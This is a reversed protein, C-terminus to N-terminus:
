CDCSYIVKKDNITDMVLTNGTFLKDLKSFAQNVLTYVNAFLINVIVVQKCYVVVSKTM